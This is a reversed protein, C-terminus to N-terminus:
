RINDSLGRIGPRLGCIGRIVCDIQVGAQSAAYLADIMDPEILSNMKLWIRAPKGNRAHEAEAAILELMRPKLTLPSIVLNELGEPLAYGSLYNFIKSADRGLEADCTFFSLDT